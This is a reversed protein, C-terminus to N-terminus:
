SMWCSLEHVRLTAGFFWLYLASGGQGGLSGSRWGYSGHVLFPAYAVARCFRIPTSTDAVASSTVVFILSLVLLAPRFRSM